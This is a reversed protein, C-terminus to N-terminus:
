EKITNSDTNNDYLRSNNNITVSTSKTDISIFQSYPTLQYQNNAINVGDFSVNKDQTNTRIIAKYQNEINSGFYINSFHNEKVQINKIPMNAE